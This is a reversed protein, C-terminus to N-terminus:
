RLHMWTPLKQGDFLRSAVFGGLAAAGLALVLTFWFLAGSSQKKTRIVRTQEHHLAAMGKADAKLGVADPPPPAGAAPKPPEPRPKPESVVVKPADAAAPKPSTAPAPAEPKKGPLPPKGARARSDPGLLEDARDPAVIQTPEEEYGFAMPTEAPQPKSKAVETELLQRARDPAIVATAEDEFDMSSPASAPARPTIPAADVSPTPAPPAAWPVPAPAPPPVRPATPAMMGLQTKAFAKKPVAPQPPAAPARGGLMETAESPAVVRTAEDEDFTTSPVTPTPAAPPRAPPPAPPPPRQPIPAPRGPFALAGDVVRTSEDDDWTSEPAVASEKKPEKAKLALAIAPIQAPSEWGSMGAKWVLAGAGIENKAWAEAIETTTMKRQTTRDVAVTWRDESAAPEASSPPAERMSVPSRSSPPGGAVGPGDVVIEAGCKRCKTRIRKGRVKEDPVSYKTYCKACSFQM